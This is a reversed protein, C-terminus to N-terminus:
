WYYRARLEIRRQNPKEGFESLRDGSLLFARLRLELNDIGTYTLEPSISRSKDDLNQILTISPTLYLIDFPEKQSVRLYLYDRMPNPRALAVAQPIAQAVAPAPQGSAPPQEHAEHVSRFIDRTETERYGGEDHYYEAIWTIDRETLYRLGILYRDIDGEEIRQGGGDALVLRSQDTIRAWEGHIEVNPVLNRSFSAGYRLSRAGEGLVLLDIDTDRYLMSLKAAPNLYGSEGFDDNLAGVTPVLLPTFSLTSLPGDFSKVLNAGLMVFGERSLDPDNPDKPREVFGLPNFAYGKGWRLTRKGAELRTGSDPQLTVFGEYLLTEGNSEGDGVSGSSHLTAQATAIGHRYLASLELAGNVRDRTAPVAEGPFQIRALAADEDLWAREPRLELYGNWEFPTKQYQGVDFDFTEQAGARDTWIVGAAAAALTLLCATSRRIANM